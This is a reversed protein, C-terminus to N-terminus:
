LHSSEGSLKKVHAKTQHHNRSHIEHPIQSPGVSRSGARHTSRYVAVLSLLKKPPKLLGVTSGLARSFDLPFFFSYM